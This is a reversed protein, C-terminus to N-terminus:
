GDRKDRKLVLTEFTAGPASSDVRVQVQQLGADPDCDQAFVLPAPGTVGDWHKVDVVTANTGEPEAFELGYDGDGACSVYVQGKVHEAFSRLTLEATSVERQVKGSVIGVRLAGLVAMVGISLVLMAILLEILTFGADSTHESTM